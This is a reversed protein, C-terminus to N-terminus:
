PMLAKPIVTNTNWHPYRVSMKPTVPVPGIRGKKGIMSKEIRNPSEM